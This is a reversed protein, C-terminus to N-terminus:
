KMKGSFRKMREVQRMPWDCARGQRRRKVARYEFLNPGLRRQLVDMWGRQEQKAVENALEHLQPNNERDRSLWGVHYVLIERPLATRLTELSIM